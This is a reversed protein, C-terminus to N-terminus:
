ALHELAARAADREETLAAHQERAKKLEERAKKQEAPSAAALAAEPPPALHPALQTIAADLTGLRDRLRAGAETRLGALAALVTDREASKSALQERSQEVLKPPAREAYGPANLRAELRRVDRVREILTAVLRESDAAADVTAADALSSLRLEASGFTVPVAPEGSAPAETTVRALGALAEVCGEGSEISGALDAPAHLVVRRRPPVNHQARVQNISNVLSRLREIAAEADADRLKPALVPWSSRCLLADDSLTVGEVPPRPQRSLQEHIAETVFPMIPHMLRVIVDLATRLVARQAPNGAVTPKIAELYWDCFDRWLLDYLVSAYVSYEYDRLAQECAASAGALRSLMWRDTLTLSSSRGAPVAPGSQDLISITFRAANWLKSAFNRGLDFRPSTNRGTAPDPRVPMRVDQTNTTMQCLTFRMADSGHSAIIDLPDVGNGLSKSMKRGQEDQIMAHIFVDKFPLRGDGARDPGLDDQGLFYRNFMVMRSVWLTIIERATCLVNSPNFAALEPTRDPWGLTSMPWLASSFWTDLVDPDQELFLICPLIEAAEAAAHSCGAAALADEGPGAEGAGTLLRQSLARELATLAGAARETRPCLRWLTHTEERLILDHEIGLKAAFAKISDRLRALFTSEVFESDDLREGKKIAAIDPILTWVPIRHGWWLQRSVCWDRIGEHWQRYTRAYREPFFRLTATSGAAPQDLARLAAGALRTDTVRVYWQDSLYPEIPAHSRYSHGVSHRYPKQDELLGRRRFQGIVERRAIERSLGLFVDAGGVDTWGHKDSISADPAMVNIVPLRHRIGLEWDNPDHAPTVKLFGTAFLAKPDVEPASPDAGPALPMVVYDDEIIPIVRGVLPLCAFLGRLAPARPDRPNVGVATDGLYTEPRTTAVTVWAQEDPDKILAEAGPYGRAALDGWMVPRAPGDDRERRVLPYRLYYFHGDVEEMEVEDDALATRSVPDWNVLRKGRYLLGDRFLRFFAERVARSCQPDMTFRQRDWDCSCGMARLQSTITAEYEDKFAQVRAVFEERAYDARAKGEDRKLRKEVVTQTAIGAHDTGPMWLTEFGMMRHARILVDQLTNNLAHGLHLRDTVNPPPIFIVYPRARGDLVPRPDAAGARAAEWAARIRPEHQAPVYQKDLGPIPSGASM